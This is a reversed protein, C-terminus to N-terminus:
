RYPLSIFIQIDGVNTGTDNRPLLDGSAKLAYYSNNNDLENEPNIGAEEMRQLSQNDVIGGAAETPGDRGDTGGSLFVWTGGAKARKMFLAYSLALEQNRGGKGDGKITVTTEGGRIHLISINRITGGIANAANSAEGTIPQIYSDMNYSDMISASMDRAAKVSQGNSGAIYWTVHKFLNTDDSTDNIIRRDANALRRKIREPIDDQLNYQRIISRVNQFTTGDPHTMGSAIDAPQNFVVDSLIITHITAKTAQALKGGKIKSLHKRICNLQSIDAGAKFLLETIAIKDQLEIDDTPVTALASGGGSLLFLIVEGKKVSQFRDLLANGAVVSSEDPFPHAAKLINKNGLNESRYDEHTVVLVSSVRDVRDKSLEKVTAEAMGVAAKGLAVVHFCQNEPYSKESNDNGIKIKWEKSEEDFRIARKVIGYPDAAKIAVEFLQQARSRLDGRLDM